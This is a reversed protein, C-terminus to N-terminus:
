DFYIVTKTKPETFNLHYNYEKDCTLKLYKDDIKLITFDCDDPLEVYLERLYEKDMGWYALESLAWIATQLDKKIETIFKKKQTPLNSESLDYTIKNFNDDFFKAMYNCMIKEESKM